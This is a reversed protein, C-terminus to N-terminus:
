LGKVHNERIAGRERLKVERVIQQTETIPLGLDQVLEQELQQCLQVVRLVQVQAPVLERVLGQARENLVHERVFVAAESVEVELIVV